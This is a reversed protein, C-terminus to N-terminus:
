YNNREGGTFSMINCSACVNCCKNVQDEIQSTSPTSANRPVVKMYEHEREGVYDFCLELLNNSLENIPSSYAPSIDLVKLSM